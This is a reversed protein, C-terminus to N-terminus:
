RRLRRRPRLLRRFRRHPRSPAGTLFRTRPPRPLLRQPQPPRGPQRIPPPAHRKSKCPRDPTFSGSTANPAASGCPSPWSRRVPAPPEACFVDLAAGTIQGGDLAAALAAADVIGGRAVNILLATPKMQRLEAAGILGRTRDNLPCHVSIVDAWALLGALSLAPYQEARAVGSTSTYRVECGFAAALRAVERGITGLGVIGWHSGHLQHNAGHFHFQRGSASYAGSKVFRDYWVTQRRLAIAAGLTTEAVSHTSYGAANRVEIGRERAAELDINNMGTAAVCILRLHPLAEMRARDIVVKNTIVVEAGRCRDAVEAPATQEYGTYDGLARLRGTNAGSLTYEDLFVIKPKEMDHREKSLGNM